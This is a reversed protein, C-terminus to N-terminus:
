ESSDPTSSSSGVDPVPDTLSTSHIGGTETPTSCLMLRLMFPLVLVLGLITAPVLNWVPPLGLANGLWAVLVVLSPAMIGVVLSERIGTSSLPALKDALAIAERVLRSQSTCDTSM